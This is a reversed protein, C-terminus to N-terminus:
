YGTQKQEDDYMRTLFSRISSEAEDRSMLKQSELVEAMDKLTRKGDQRKTPSALLPGSM